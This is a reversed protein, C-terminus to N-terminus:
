FFKVGLGGLFSVFSPAVAFKFFDLLSIEQKLDSLLITLAILTVIAPITVSVIPHKWPPIKKLINNTLSKLKIVNPYDRLVECINLIAGLSDHDDFIKIGTISFSQNKNLDSDEFSSVNQLGVNLLHQRISNHYQPSCEVVFRVEVPM